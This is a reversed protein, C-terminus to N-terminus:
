AAWTTGPVVQTIADVIDPQGLPKSVYADMGAGLFHEKDGQMAHATVAVIPLRAGSLRERQRIVATAELGDMVPMQVDMFVLDFTESAVIEAAEQGNSVVTVLHGLKELMRQLLKQNVVVDDAVLIRLRRPSSSVPGAVTHIQAPKVGDAVPDSTAKEQSPQVRATFHFTSGHGEESEVWLRGGMLRVLRLSIALGLGTGGFQRTTSSDAQAFEEFILAQKAAPIGIGTDRVQFHLQVFTATVDTAELTVVIEGRKTFKLANGVLNIIVQALRGRDAVVRAPVNERIDTVLAVGKEHVRLALTRLMAAVADRLNFDTPDLEVKGAEIKSFDLIDNILALLAHGSERVVGLFERQETSLPTDLALETMGIIGNMPTRIEHSMHALFDGKARNASEAKDEAAKREIVEQQLDRTREEVLRVLERQRHRVRRVQGQYATVVTGVSALLVLGLFWRTQYFHPLL